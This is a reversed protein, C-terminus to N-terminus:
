GSVTIVRRPRGSRNGDVFSHTPKKKPGQPPPNEREGKQRENQYVARLCFKSPATPKRKTEVHKWSIAGAVRLLAEADAPPDFRFGDLSDLLSLGLRLREAAAGASDFLAM